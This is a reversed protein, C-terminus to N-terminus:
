LEQKTEQYKFIEFTDGEKIDNYNVVSIGCEFGAQVEKVDDKFRRLSDIKGEYIQVSDRIVRINNDREVKGDTVMCGAITGIKSIHFTEKVEVHATIVESVLPELLGEM